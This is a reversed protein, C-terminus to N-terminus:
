SLKVLKIIVSIAKAFEMAQTKTECDAICRVGSMRKGDDKAHLYVSWFDADKEDCVEIANNGVNCVPSVEIDDYEMTRGNEKQPIPYITMKFKPQKTEKAKM